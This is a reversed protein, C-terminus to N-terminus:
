FPLHEIESVLLINEKECIETFDADFSAIVKIGHKICSALIIADNPLLNYREMLRLFTPIVINDTAAYSFLSLFQSLKAQNIFKSISQDRKLTLPAKQGLMALWHFTYESIITENIVMEYKTNESLLYEFLSPRQNKSYEVLISTDIFIKNSM